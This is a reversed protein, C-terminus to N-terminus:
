AVLRGIKYKRLTVAVSHEVSSLFDVLDEKKFHFFRDTDTIRTGNDMLPAGVRTIEIRANSDVGYSGVLESAAKLCNESGDGTLDIVCDLIGSSNLFTPGFGGYRPGSIFTIRRSKGIEYNNLKLENRGVIPSIMYSSINVPYLKPGNAKQQSFKTYIRELWRSRSDFWGVVELDEPRGALYEARWTYLQGSEELLDPSTKACLQHFVWVAKSDLNFGLVTSSAGTLLNNEGIVVYDATTKHFGNQISEWSECIQKQRNQLGEETIFKGFYNTEEYLKLISDITFDRKSRLAPFAAIRYYDFFVGADHGTKFKLLIVYTNEIERVIEAPITIDGVILTGLTSNLKVNTCFKISKMGLEILNVEIPSNQESGGKWFSIPIKQKIDDSLVIRPLRRSKFTTISMPPNLILNWPDNNEKNAVAIIETEFEYCTRFVEFRIWIKEFDAFMSTDGNGVTVRIETPEREDPDYSMDCTFQTKSGDPNSKVIVASRCDEWQFYLSLASGVVVPDDSVSGNEKALTQGLSYDDPSYPVIKLTRPQSM